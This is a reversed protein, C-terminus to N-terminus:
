DLDIQEIESDDMGSDRWLRALTKRAIPHVLDPALDALPKLVHAYVLIESRPLDLGENGTVPPDILLIDIDLTRDSFRPQKRNRGHRDELDRLWTRLQGPEMETEVVAALNIFDEGEFGVARSRYVPSFRCGPFAARLAEMAARIHYEANINSGLSLYARSV